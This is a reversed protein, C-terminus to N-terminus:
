DHTQTINVNLEAMVERVSKLSSSYETVPIGFISSRYGRSQSHNIFIITVNLYRNSSIVVHLTLVYKDNAKFVEAACVTLEFM